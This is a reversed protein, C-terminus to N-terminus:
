HATSHGRAASPSRLGPPEPVGAKYRERTDPCDRGRVASHTQAESRHMCAV